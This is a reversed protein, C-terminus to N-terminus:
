REQDGRVLGHSNTDKDTWGRGSATKESEHTNENRPTERMKEPM